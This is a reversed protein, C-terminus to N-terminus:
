LTFDVFQSRIWSNDAPRAARKTKANSPAPLGRKSIALATTSNRPVLSSSAIKSQREVKLSQQTTCTATCCRKPAIVPNSCSPASPGSMELIASIPGCARITIDNM